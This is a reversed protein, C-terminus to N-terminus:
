DGSETEATATTEEPDDDSTGPEDDAGGLRSRAASAANVIARSARDTDNRLENRRWLAAVGFAVLLALLFRPM